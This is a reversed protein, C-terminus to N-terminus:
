LAFVGILRELTPTQSGGEPEITIAYANSAEEYQVALFGEEGPFVDLPIPDVGVKLSWLQFAQGPELVPVERIHVINRGSTPNHYFILDTQPYGETPQVVVIEVAPDRLQDLLAVDAQLAARISDCEEQYARLQDDTAQHSNYIYALALLVGALLAWPLIQWLRSASRTAPPNANRKRVEELVRDRLHVSPQMAVTYAYAELTKGIEQIEERLSPEAELAAEVRASEERSTLGLVYLELLGSTRLENLDM